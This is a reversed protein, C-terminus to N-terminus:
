ISEYPKLVKKPVKHKQNSKIQNRIPILMNICTKIKRIYTDKRKAAETYFSLGQQNKM